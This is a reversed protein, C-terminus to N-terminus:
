RGQKELGTVSVSHNTVPPAPIRLGLAFTFWNRHSHSSKSFPKTKYLQKYNQLPITNNAVLIHYTHGTIPIRQYLPTTSTPMRNVFDVHLDCPSQTVMSDCVGLWHMDHVGFKM